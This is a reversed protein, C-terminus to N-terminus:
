LKALYEIAPLSPLFTYAGGRTTVFRPFGRLRIRGGNRLSLDFWSTEPTNAGILPDNAGTVDPDELGLNLWDCMIAEFQAGLSAGIFNGLLGREQDDPHDPDFDPGYSMGRRILRRTYNSIRQVITGGRPNVRRMHSGSPCRSDRGYEFNTLSPRPVPCQVDPSVGYPVGTRWRGCMQAAVIERLAWFRDHEKGILGEGGPALLQDVDPHAELEKAAQDLYAEFGKADQALVRFANFTGNAGLECPKPVRFFLGELRTPYGLLATGLPDVPEDANQTTPDNRIEAFRPQSISDRFGFFVQTPKEVKPGGSKGGKAAAHNKDAFLNRGDKAGLVEFARGVQTQVSEFDQENDAYLSAIVHVRAPEDFPKPWNEPASSGFDGLKLARSAMGERFETPFTALFNSPTGLARLGECTVGINFCVRPAKKDPWEAESTIRPVDADEGTVSAGLFKRAAAPNAVELILHRVVNRRYGRLINGQIKTRDFTIQTCDSEPTV